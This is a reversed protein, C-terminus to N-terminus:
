NRNQKQFELPSLGTYQKFVRCFYYKNLYGVQEAAEQSLLRSHGGLLRKAEAIRLSNLYETYNKGCEKKIVRTLYSESVFFKEALDSLSLGPDRFHSDIYSRVAAALSVTEQKQAGVALTKLILVLEGRDVPKLLYDCVGLQMAKRVYAYQDHGSIILYRIDPMITAFTQIVELGDMGPMTIDMLVIDPRKRRILECADIGNGALGAVEFGPIQEVVKRLGNRIHIEDDCILIQTAGM